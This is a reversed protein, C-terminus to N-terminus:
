IPWGRQFGRGSVPGAPVLLRQGLGSFGAAVSCAWRFGCGGVM